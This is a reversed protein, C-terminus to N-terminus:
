FRGPHFSASLVLVLGLLAILAFEVVVRGSLRGLLHSQAVGVLSYFVLLLFVGGALGAMMWYSLAWAMEGLALGVTAAYLMLRRAELPIPRLLEWAVLTSLAAILAVSWLGRLRLAYIASYLSFAVIYAIVGLALRAPRYLRHQLYGSYYHGALVLSLLLATVMLGAAISLGTAFLPLRLFLLAGLVLLAALVWPSAEARRWRRERAQVARLAEDTGLAALAVLLGGALWLVPPNIFLSAALGLLVLAILRVAQDAIPAM